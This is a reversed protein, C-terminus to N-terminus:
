SAPTTGPLDLRGTLVANAVEHLRRQRPRAYRRMRAFAAEVGIGHREALAGKAQEILVRNNLATQLQGARAASQELEYALAVQRSGYAVLVDTMPEDDFSAHAAYFLTLAGVMTTGDIPTTRTGAVGAEAAAARFGPWRTRVIDLDAVRIPAGTRLCDVAPGEVGHVAFLARMGAEDPAGVSSVETSTVDAARKATVIAGIGVLRSVPRSGTGVVARVAATALVEFLGTITEHVQCLSGERAIMVIIIRITAFSTQGVTFM